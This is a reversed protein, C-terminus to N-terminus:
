KNANVTAEIQSNLYTNLDGFSEIIFEKLEANLMTVVANKTIEFAEKQAEITFEGKKKLADVYTQNTTLVSVSIIETIRDIYKQETESKTKKKLENSKAQIFVILYGTLTVILPLIVLNFLENMFNQM